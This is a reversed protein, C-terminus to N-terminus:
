TPGWPHEVVQITVPHDGLGMGFAFCPKRSFFFISVETAKPLDVGCIIPGSCHVCSHSLNTPGDGDYGMGFLIFKKVSAVDFCTYATPIPECEVHAVECDNIMLM